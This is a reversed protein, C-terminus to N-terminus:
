CCEYCEMLVHFLPHKAINDFDIVFCRLKAGGAGEASSRQKRPIPELHLSSHFPSNVSCVARYLNDARLHPAASRALSDSLFTSRKREAKRRRSGFSEAALATSRLDTHSKLHHTARDHSRSLPDFQMENGRTGCSSLSPLSVVFKPMFLRPCSCHIPHKQCGCFKSQTTGESLM